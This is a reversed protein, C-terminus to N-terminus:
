PIKELLKDVQNKINAKLADESDERPDTWFPAADEETWTKKQEKELLVEPLFDPEDPVFIDEAPIKKLKFTESIKKQPTRQEVISLVVTIIVASLAACGLFILFRRVSKKIFFNSVGLKLKYGLGSAFGAKAKSKKGFM